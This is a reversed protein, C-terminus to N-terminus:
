LCAGLRATPDSIPNCTYAPAPCDLGSYSMQCIYLCQTEGGTLNFCQYHAACDAAGNTSCDSGQTGSGVGTCDTFGVYVGGGTDVFSPRCAQLTDCGTGLLVDCDLTCAKIGSATTGGINMEIRCAARSGLSACDADTRCLKRCRNGSGDNLCMLGSACTDTSSARACAQNVNRAGARDCIPDPFAGALEFFACKMGDGCIRQEVLDDITCPDGVEHPGADDAAGDEVTGDDPTADDAARDDAGGDDADADGGDPPTGACQCTTGVCAGASYGGALCSATCAAATCAAGDTDGGGDPSSCTCRGEVCIGLAPLCGARCEVASCEGPLEAQACGGLIAALAAPLFRHAVKM